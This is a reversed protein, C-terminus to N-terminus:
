EVVITGHMGEGTAKNYHPTCYFTYTGPAATRFLALSQENAPMPAHVGLEDIDFQHAVPDPNELRLAVTEGAKVRITGGEFKDLTVAPLSALTDPSVGAGTSGGAVSAVLLAGVVIGVIASLTAVTGRPARREASRYNQVTAWVSAVLGVVVVPLALALMSFPGFDGPHSLMFAIEGGGLALFAGLLGFLLTGLLPAWRLGTVVVGAFLLALLAIGAIPPIFEGIVTQAYGLVGALVVLAAATIKGMAAPARRGTARTMTMSAEM